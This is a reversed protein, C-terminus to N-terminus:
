LTIAMGTAANPRTVGSIAAAIIALEDSRTVRLARLSALVLVHVPDREDDCRSERESQARQRYQQPRQAAALIVIGFAISLADQDVIRVVLIGHAARLGQWKDRRTLAACSRCTTKAPGGM